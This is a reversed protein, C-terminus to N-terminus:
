AAVAGSGGSEGGGLGIASGGGGGGHRPEVEDLCTCLDLLTAAGLATTTPMWTGRHARARGWGPPGPLPAERAISSSVTRSIAAVQMGVRCREIGGTLAVDGGPFVAGTM